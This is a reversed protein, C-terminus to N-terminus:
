RAPASRAVRGSGRGGAPRTRPRGATCGPRPQGQVGAGRAAAWCGPPRGLGGATPGAGPRRGCGPPPGAGPRRGCGPRRGLVWAAALVLAAAAGPGGDALVPGYSLLRPRRPSWLRATPRGGPGGCPKTRPFAAGKPRAAQFCPGPRDDGPQCPTGGIREASRHLRAWCRRKPHRDPHATRAPEVDRPRVVYVQPEPLGSCLRRM